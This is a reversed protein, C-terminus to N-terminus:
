NQNPSQGHSGNLRVWAPLKRYPLEAVGEGQGDSVSCVERSITNPSPLISLRYASRFRPVLVHRSKRISVAKNAESLHSNDCIPHTHRCGKHGSGLCGRRHKCPEGEM